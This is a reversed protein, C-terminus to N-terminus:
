LEVGKIVDDLVDRLYATTIQRVRNRELEDAAAGRGYQEIYARQAKTKAIQAKFEERVAKRIKQRIANSM